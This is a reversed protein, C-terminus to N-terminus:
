KNGIKATIIFSNMVFNNSSKETNNTQKITIPNMFFFEM